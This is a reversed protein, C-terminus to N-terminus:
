RTGGLGHLQVHLSAAESRFRDRQQQFHLILGPLIERSLPM